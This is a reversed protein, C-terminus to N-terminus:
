ESRSGEAAADVADRLEIMAVAFGTNISTTRWIERIERAATAIAEAKALRGLVDRLADVDDEDFEIVTPTDPDRDEDFAEV